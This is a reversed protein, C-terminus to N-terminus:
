CYLAGLLTEECKIAADQEKKQGQDKEVITGNLLRSTRRLHSLNRRVNNIERRLLRIRKTREGSTNLSLVIDLMDRLNQLQEDSSLHSRNDPNLLNDVLYM